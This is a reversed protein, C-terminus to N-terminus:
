KYPNDCSTVTMVNPPWFTSQSTITNCLGDSIQFNYVITATKGTNPQFRWQKSNALSDPILDKPGSIATSETVRGEDDLTVKVVVSGQIRALRPLGPYKMDEFHRVKVGTDNIPANQQAPTGNPVVALLLTVLLIKRM